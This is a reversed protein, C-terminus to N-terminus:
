ANIRVRNGPHWLLPLTHISASSYSVSTSLLCQSHQSSCLRGLVQESTTELLELTKDPCYRMKKEWALRCQLDHILTSLEHARARHVVDMTKIILLGTQSDVKGEVQNCLWHADAYSLMSMSASVTDSAIKRVCVYSCPLRVRVTLEPTNVLQEYGSGRM